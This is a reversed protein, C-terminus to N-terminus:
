YQMATEWTRCRLGIKEKESLRTEYSEHIVVDQYFEDINMNEEVPIGEWGFVSKSLYEVYITKSCIRPRNNRKLVSLNSKQTSDGIHLYPM